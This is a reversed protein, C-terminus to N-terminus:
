VNIIGSCRKTERTVGQSLGGMCVNMPAASIKLQLVQQWFVVIVLLLSAVCSACSGEKFALGWHSAPARSPCSAVDWKESM